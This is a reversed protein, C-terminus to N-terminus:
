LGIIIHRGQGSVWRSIHRGHDGLHTPAMSNLMLEHFRQFAFWVEAGRMEGGSFRQCQAAPKTLDGNPEPVVASASIAANPM